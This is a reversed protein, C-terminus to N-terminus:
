RIVTISQSLKTEVSSGDYTVTVTITVVGLQNKRLKWNVVFQDNAADYKLCQGSVTQAGTASFTVDCGAALAAAEADGIRVGDGNALAVKVPVTQGARWMSQAVPSFFGLIRYEITVTFTTSAQNGANDTATCEIAQAGAQSTDVPDCGASAVGSTADSANPMVEVGAQGIVVGSVNLAPALTPATSDLSVSASVVPAEINGAADVSAAYLAHEGDAAVSTLACAADPLDAFTAPALDTAPLLACRTQAVADDLDDATISVGVSSTYWGNAGNPAPPTLAITTVPPVPAPIEYEYAGIDGVLGQPRAVGRQDDLPVAGVARNIASSSPGIAMTPTRGPANLALAGLGPDVSNAVGPCAPNGLNNSASNTIVNGASGSTTVGNQTYCESSGNNAVITNRLVLTAEDDGIPDYVVIGGGGGNTVTVAANGAITSSGVTLHGAVTFIAGGAGRGDRSDDGGNRGWRAVNGHFTSNSVDIDALYGFIAGGLGAGGGGADGGGDGAFTGGQGRGGFIGDFTEGSGGGGGFGGHGGQAGLGDGGGGGGGFGGNGGASGEVGGGGGGGYSGNGGAGGGFPDFFPVRETGGGGGGGPCAVAADDGDDAGGTLEDYVGGAAGCPEGPVVGSASTVRGGGGGGDQGDGEGGNGRSGGGGGGTAYPLEAVGGNGSLGGGGGSGIASTRHSGDGGEASNGEFTAWQVLLRGGQVYIAGGAGMGGGGGDEGNGGHIAFAKVHVERLDLFGTPGVAFLRTFRGAAVRELRAGRGEITIDSTIMPTATPGMFNDWDTIPDAFQFVGMPPLEIIDHGSGGPCATDLMLAPNSPDPAINDDLNAAYIAEQLSCFGDGNIEQNVTNVLITTTARAPPAGTWGAMALLAAGVVAATARRRGTPRTSAKARHARSGNRPLTPRAPVAM